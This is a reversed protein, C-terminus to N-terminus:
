DILARYARVRDADVSNWSFEPARLERGMVVRSNRYEMASSVPGSASVHIETAGTQALIRLVNRERIGGGPMVLIRGTARRILEAILDTGEFVTAEQGSTLM